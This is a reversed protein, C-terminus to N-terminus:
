SRHSSGSLGTAELDAIVTVDNHLRVASVPIEITVPGNLLGALAKRKTQGTALVLIKRAELITGIGVTVAHTPMEDCRFLALMNSRTSEVLEVIRTRSDLASGPENFAIHGNTGVGAILLDIGGAADINREYDSCAADDAMSSQLHINEPRINVPSLFHRKLYHDFSREDTPLVGIYEDLNFVRTNSFDLKDERHMRILESYLGVPTRGTPLALTANPKSFIFQAVFGAAKRSLNHIDPEVLVRM